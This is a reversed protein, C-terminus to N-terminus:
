DLDAPSPRRAWYAACHLLVGALIAIGLAIGIPGAFIGSQASWYDLETRFSNPDGFVRLSEQVIWIGGCLVVVGLVAAAIAFPNTWPARLAAEPRQVVASAGSAPPTATGAPDVRDDALARSETEGAPPIERAPHAGGAYSAARRRAAASRSGTSVQGSFGRQFAPDYRPDFEPQEAM